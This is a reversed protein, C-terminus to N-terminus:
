RTGGNVGALANDLTARYLDYWVTIGGGSGPIPPALVVGYDALGYEAVDYYASLPAVM